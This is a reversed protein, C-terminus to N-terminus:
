PQPWIAHSTGRFHHPLLSDKLNNYDEIITIRLLSSILPSHFHPAQQGRPLICPKWLVSFSCCTHLQSSFLLFFILDFWCGERGWAKAEQCTNALFHMQLQFVKWHLLSCIIGAIMFDVLYFQSLSWVSLGKRPKCISFNVKYVAGFIAFVWFFSFIINWGAYSKKWRLRSQCSNDCRTAM